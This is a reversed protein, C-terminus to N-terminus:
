GNLIRIPEVEASLKSSDSSVDLPYLQICFGFRAGARAKPHTQASLIDVCNCKHANLAKMCNCKHAHM